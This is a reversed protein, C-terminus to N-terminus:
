YEIFIVSRCVKVDVGIIYLVVVMFRREELVVCWGGVGGM